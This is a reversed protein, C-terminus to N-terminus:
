SEYSFFLIAKHKAKVKHSFIDVVVDLLCQVAGHRNLASIVLQIACIGM